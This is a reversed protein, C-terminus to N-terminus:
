ARFVIRSGHGIGWVEGNTNFFFRLYSDAGNINVAIEAPGVVRAPYKKRAIKVTIGKRTSEIKLTTGEGSKYTGVLKALAEKEVDADPAYTIQHEVPLGLLLNMMGLWVRASPFGTLNSLVVGGVNKEPIFGINSAVGKLSGSHQVLTVKDDGYGPRINFGYGYWRDRTYNYYPTIMRDIGASSLVRKGNLEGKNMYMMVYKLLDELNSKIFGCATFAPAQSWHNSKTVKGEKDKYYLSTVDTDGLKEPSVVTSAMGLPQLLNESLYSEYDTGSVREIITGLLGYTENSYSLYDSPAGLLRYEHSAIFKMLEEPTGVSPTKKGCSRTSTKKGNQPTAQRIAWGLSPLPPLGATHTLFNHITVKDAYGAEPCDYEPLYRKVPHSIGLRNNEILQMISLATFSKSVSAIGFRTCPTVPQGNELDRAGFGKIYIPEGGAILGVALGPAKHESMLDQIYEELIGADFIERNNVKV